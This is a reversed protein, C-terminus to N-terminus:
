LTGAPRIITMIAVKILVAFAQANSHNSFADSHHLVLGDLSTTFVGSALMDRILQLREAKMTFLGVPKGFRIKLKLPQRRDELVRDGRREEVDAYDVVGQLPHLITGSNEYVCCAPTGYDPAQM